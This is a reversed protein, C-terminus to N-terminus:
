KANPKAIDIVVGGGEKTFAQCEIKAEKLDLDALESTDKLAARHCRHAGAELRKPDVGTVASGTAALLAFWKNPPFGSADWGISVYTVFKPDCILVM